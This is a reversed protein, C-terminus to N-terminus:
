TSEEAGNFLFYQLNKQQFKFSLNALFIVRIELCTDSTPVRIANPIRIVPPYAENRTVHPVTDGAGPLARGPERL